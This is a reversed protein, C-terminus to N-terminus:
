MAGEAEADGFSFENGHEDIIIMGVIRLDNEGGLEYAMMETIKNELSIRDTCVSDADEPCENILMSDCEYYGIEIACIGTSTSCTQVNRNQCGSGQASATILPDDSRVGFHHGYSLNEVAASATALLLAYSLM